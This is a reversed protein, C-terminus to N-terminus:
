GQNKMYWNVAAYVAIVVFAVKIANVGYLHQLLIPLGLLGFLVLIILFVTFVQSRSIEELEM